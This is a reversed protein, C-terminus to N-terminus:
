VQKDIDSLLVSCVNVVNLKTEVEDATHAVKHMTEKMTALLISHLVRAIDPSMTLVVEEPM